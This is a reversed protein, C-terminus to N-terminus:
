MELPSWATVLILIVSLVLIKFITKVTSIWFATRTMFITEDDYTFFM